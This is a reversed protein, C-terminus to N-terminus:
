RRDILKIPAIGRPEPSPKTRAEACVGGIIQDLFRIQPYPGILSAAYPRRFGKQQANGGVKGQVAEGTLSDALLVKVIRRRTRVSSEIAGVFREEELLDDAGDRFLVSLNEEERSKPTQSM